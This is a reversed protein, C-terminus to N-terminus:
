RVVVEGKTKLAQHPLCYFSYRGSPIGDFSVMTFASARRMESWGLSTRQSATQGHLQM